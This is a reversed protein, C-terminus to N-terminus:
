REERIVAWAAVIGVPLLKLLGRSGQSITGNLRAAALATTVM